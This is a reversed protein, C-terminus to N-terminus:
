ADIFNLDCNVGDVDKDDGNDGDNDEDNDDDGGGITKDFEGGLDESDRAVNFDEDADEESVERIEVEEIVERGIDGGCARELTRATVEVEDDEDKELPRTCQEIFVDVM